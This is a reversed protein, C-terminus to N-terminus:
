FPDIYSSFIDLSEQIPIVPPSNCNELLEQIDIELHDLEFQSIFGANSGCTRCCPREPKFDAVWGFWNGFPQFLKVGALSDSVIYEDYSNVGDGSKSIYKTLYGVLNNTPVQKIYVGRGTSVKMWHKLLTDFPIYDGAIIAHIHAHWKDGSKTVEIVFAGGTVKRKWFSRQRLRRFSKQLSKVMVPLNTINKITLTLFRCDQKQSKVQRKVLYNLKRRVKSLRSYGCVSCFRNKCPQPVSYSQGCHACYLTIYEHNDNSEM